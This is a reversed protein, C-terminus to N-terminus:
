GAAGVGRVDELCTARQITILSRRVASNHGGSRATLSGSFRWFSGNNANAMICHCGRREVVRVGIVVGIVVIIITTCFPRGLDDVGGFVIDIRGVVTTYVTIVRRIPAIAHM